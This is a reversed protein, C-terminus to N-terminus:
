EGNLEELWMAQELGSMTDWEGSNLATALSALNAWDGEDVLRHLVKYAEESM